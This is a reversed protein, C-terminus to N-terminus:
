IFLGYVDSEELDRNEFEDVAYELKEVFQNLFKKNEHIDLTAEEMFHSSYFELNGISGGQALSEMYDDLDNKSIYKHSGSLLESEYKDLISQAKKKTEKEQEEIAILLNNYKHICSRLDDAVFRITDPQVKIKKGSGGDNGHGKKVSSKSVDKSVSKSSESSSKSDKKAKKEKDAKVKNCTKTISDKTKAVQGFPDFITSFFDKKKSANNYKKVESKSM